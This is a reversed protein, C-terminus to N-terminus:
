RGGGERGAQVWGKLGFMGRSGRMGWRSRICRPGHGSVLSESLVLVHSVLAWASNAQEGLLVLRTSCISQGTTRDGTSTSLLPTHHITFESHSMLPPRPPDNPGTLIDSEVCSKEWTLVQRTVTCWRGTQVTCRLRWSNLHCLSNNLEYHLRKIFGNGKFTRWWNWGERGRERETKDACGRPLEINILAM